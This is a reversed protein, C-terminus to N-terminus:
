YHRREKELKNALFKHITAIDIAIALHYVPIIAVFPMPRINSRISAPIVALSKTIGILEYHGKTKVYVGGGSNGGVIPATFLLSGNETLSAYGDTMQIPMLRGAGVSYVKEMRRVSERKSITVAPRNTTNLAMLALDYKSSFRFITANYKKTSGVFIASTVRRAVHLVTLVITTYKDSSIVVGTGGSHSGILTVTPKLMDQQRIDIEDALAISSVLTLLVILTKM